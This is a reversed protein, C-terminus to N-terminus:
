STKIKQENKIKNRKKIPEIYEIYDNEILWQKPASYLECYIEIESTVFYSKVVGLIEKDSHFYKHNVMSYIGSHWVFVMVEYIFRNCNDPRIAEKDKIYFM